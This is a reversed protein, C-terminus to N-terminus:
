TISCCKDNKSQKVKEVHSKFSQSTTNEENYSIHSKNEQELRKVFNSSISAESLSTEDLYDEEIEPYHIIPLQEETVITNYTYNGRESKIKSCFKISNIFGDTMSIDLCNETLNKLGAIVEYERGLRSIFMNNVHSSGMFGIWKEGHQLPNKQLDDNITKAATYSFTIYRNKGKSTKAGHQYFQKIDLAIIKFGTNVAKQLITEYNYLENYKGLMQGRSLEQLYDSLKLPMKKTFNLIDILNKHEYKFLHETYFRRYGAKYLEEFSEILWKKASIDGHKEGLAINHKLIFNVLKQRTSKKETEHQENEKYKLEPRAFKGLYVNKDSIKKSQQAIYARAQLIYEDYFNLKPPPTEYIPPLCPDSKSKIPTEYIVPLTSDTKLKVPTKNKSM